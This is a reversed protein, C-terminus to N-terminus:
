HILFIETSAQYTTGDSAIALLANGASNEKESTKSISAGIAIIPNNLSTPSPDAVFFTRNGSYIIVSHKTKLDKGLYVWGTKQGIPCTIVDLIQIQPTNSAQTAIFHPPTIQAPTVSYDSGTEVHPYHYAFGKGQYILFEGSDSIFSNTMTETKEWTIGNKSFLPKQQSFDDVIFFGDCKQPSTEVVIFGLQESSSRQLSFVKKRSGTPPLVQRWTIGDDTQAVAGEGGTVLGQKTSFAAVDYHSTSEPIEEQNWTHGDSSSYVVSHHTNVDIGFIFFRGLGYQISCVTAHKLSGTKQWGFYLESHNLFYIENEYNKKNKIIAVADGVETGTSIAIPNSPLLHEMSIKKWSFHPMHDSGMPMAAMLTPVIEAVVLLLSAARLFFSRHVLSLPHMIKILCREEGNM